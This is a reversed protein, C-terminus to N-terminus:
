RVKNVIIAALVVGFVVNVAFLGYQPWDSYDPWANVLVMGCLFSYYLGIAAPILWLHRMGLDRRLRM